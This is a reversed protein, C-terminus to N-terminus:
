VDIEGREYRQWLDLFASGVRSVQDESLDAERDWLARKLLVNMARAQALQIRQARDALGLKAAKTLADTCHRLSEEYASLVAALSQQGQRDTVTIDADTLMAAREALADKLAVQEGIVKLLEGVPDDVPKIDRKAITATADAVVMRRAAANAVQPAAGGHFRCVTAGPVPAKQCQSGSRNTAACRPGAHPVSPIPEPLTVSTSSVQSNM